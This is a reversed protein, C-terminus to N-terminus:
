GGPITGNGATNNEFVSNLIKATSNNTNTIAGGTTSATNGGFYSLFVKLSSSNDNFIAGGGDATNNKFVSGM